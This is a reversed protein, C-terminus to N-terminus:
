AMCAHIKTKMKSNSSDKRSNDLKERIVGQNRIMNKIFTLCGQM